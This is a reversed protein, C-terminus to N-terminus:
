KGYLNLTDICDQMSTTNFSPMIGTEKMNALFHEMRYQAAFLTPTSYIVINVGAEELEKLSWNPSKGGQLQNVMIPCKVQNRLKYIFELDSIAEVMIGDAGHDAYTIARYLGENIDTADTRAIVFLDKRVSLVTELKIIYENIPLIEKGEFHGCRRPRKQDEMMIASIGNSELSRVTNSAVIHDGFGDDIDVLLFNNPLAHRIKTSIDVQDKWNVFGIDPLGYYSAAVSFGSVFVGDFYKAAVLASFVDYVGIMPLIQKTNIRTRFHKGANM